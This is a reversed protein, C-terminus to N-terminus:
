WQRSLLLKVCIKWVVGLGSCWSGKKVICSVCDILVISKKLDREGIKQIIKLDDISLNKAIINRSSQLHFIQNLYRQLSVRIINARVVAISFDASWSSLAKTLWLLIVNIAAKIIYNLNLLADICFDNYWPKGPWVITEEDLVKIFIYENYYIAV